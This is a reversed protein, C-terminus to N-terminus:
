KRSNHKLIWKDNDSIPGPHYRSQNEFPVFTRALSQEIM